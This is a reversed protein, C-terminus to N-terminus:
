FIIFFFFTYLFLSSINVLFRTSFLKARLIQNQISKVEVFFHIKPKEKEEKERPDTKKEQSKEGGENKEKENKQGGGKRGSIGIIASLPLVHLLREVNQANDKKKAAPPM